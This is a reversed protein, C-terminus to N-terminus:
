DGESASITESESCSVALDPISVRSKLLWEAIVDAVIVPIVYQKMLLKMVDLPLSHFGQHCLRLQRFVPAFLRPLGTLTPEYFGSPYFLRPTMLNVDFNWMGEAREWTLRHQQAQVLRDRV